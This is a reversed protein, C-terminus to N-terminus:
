TTSILHKGKQRLGRPIAKKRQKQREEGKKCRTIQSREIAIKLMGEKPLTIKATDEIFSMVSFHCLLEGSVPSTQTVKLGFIAYVLPMKSHCIDQLHIVSSKSNETCLCM